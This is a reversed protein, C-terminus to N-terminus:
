GVEVGDGDAVDARGEVGGQVADRHGVEDGGGSVEGRVADDAVAAEAEDVLRAERVADGDGNLLQALVGELAEAFEAGFHLRESLVLDAMRIEDLDEPVANGPIVSDQDVLKDLSPAQVLPNVVRRERSGRSVRRHRTRRRTIPGRQRPIRSHPNYLTHRSPQREQMIQVSWDYMPINLRAVHQQVLIKLGVNRIKPESPPDLRRMRVHGGLHGPGHAVHRRLVLVADGRRGNTGINITKPYQHYLHRGPPPRIPRNLRLIPIQNPERFPSPSHRLLAPM